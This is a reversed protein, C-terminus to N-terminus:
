WMAGQWGRPVGALMAGLATLGGIKLARRRSLTGALRVTKRQSGNIKMLYEMLCGPGPGPPRNEFENSGRGEGRGPDTGGGDADARRATGYGCFGGGSM